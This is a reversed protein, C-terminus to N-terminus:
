NLNKLEFIKALVGSVIANDPLPKNLVVNAGIEVNDGITIGGFVVAGKHIRVNNGIIPLGPYKSNYM